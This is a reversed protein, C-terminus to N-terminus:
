FSAPWVANTLTFGLPATPDAVGAQAFASAFLGAPVPISLVSRGKSNTNPGPLLLDLGVYLTCGAGVPISTGTGSLAFLTSAGAPANGIQLLLTGGLGGTLNRNQVLMPSAGAGNPCGSGFGFHIRMVYFTTGAGAAGPPYVSQVFAVGHAAANSTVTEPYQAIAPDNSGPHSFLFALDGGLYQYPVQFDFYFEAWPNPAPAPPNVNTFVGADLVMPGSRVQVPIGAFNSFFNGSWTGVPNAAGVWIDYSNWVIDAPPWVASNSGFVQFRLSVGTISSGFPIGALESANVGYQYTRPNGANRIISNLQSTGRVNENANPVVVSQAGVGAVGVVVAAFMLTLRM